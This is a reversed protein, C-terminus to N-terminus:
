EIEQNIITIANEGRPKILISANTASIELGKSTEKILIEGLGKTDIFLRKGDTLDIDM